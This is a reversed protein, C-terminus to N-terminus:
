RRRRRKHPPAEGVSGSPSGPDGNKARSRAAKAQEDADYKECRDFVDVVHDAASMLWPDQAFVGGDDPLLNYRRLFRAAKLALAYRGSSQARIVPCM